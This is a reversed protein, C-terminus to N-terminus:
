KNEPLICKANQRKEIYQLLFKTAYFIIGSIIVFGLVYIMLFVPYPVLEDFIGVVPLTCNFYPSIFFMNFTDDIGNASFVAYVSLNLIMAISLLVGFACLAGLYYKHTYRKRNYVICLFGAVVQLGHHILSQINIGLFQCLVDNPYLMVAIGGFLSFTALFAMAADRVKGDKVLAAVPLVYLPSACLQFPFQYWAYDWSAVGNEVGLSFVLERYVELVFLVIWTGFLVRRFTRDNCDKLKICVFVTLGIILLLFFIHFLGWNRPTEVEFSLFYIIKEFLNM